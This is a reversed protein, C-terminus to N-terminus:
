LHRYESCCMNRGIAVNHINCSTHPVTQSRGIVSYRLGYYRFRIPISAVDDHHALTDRNNLPLPPHAAVSAFHKKFHRSVVVYSTTLLFLSLYFSRLIPLSFLYIFLSPFFLSLVLLFVSYIHDIYFVTLTFNVTLLFYIFFSISSFSFIFFSNKNSFLTNLLTNPGLLSSTVPYHLFNRLSSSLSRYEKGFITRITFDLLILHAPCTARIPSPSPHM